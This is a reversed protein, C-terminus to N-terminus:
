ARHAEMFFRDAVRVVRDDDSTAEAAEGARRQECAGALPHQHELAVIPRAAVRMGEPPAAIAEIRRNVHDPAALRSRELSGGQQVAHEAREPHAITAIERADIGAIADLPRPEYELRRRLELGEDFRM